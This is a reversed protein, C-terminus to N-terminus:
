RQLVNEASLRFRTAVASPAPEHNNSRANDITKAAPNHSRNSFRAASAIIIM